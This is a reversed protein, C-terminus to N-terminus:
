SFTGTLPYYSKSFVNSCIQCLQIVIEFLGISDWGLKLNFEIRGSEILPIDGSADTDTTSIDFLRWHHGDRMWFNIGLANETSKMPELPSIGLYGVMGDFSWLAPGVRHDSRIEHISLHIYEAPLTPGAIYKAFLLIRNGKIPVFSIKGLRRSRHKPVIM